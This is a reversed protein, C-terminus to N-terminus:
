ELNAGAHAWGCCCTGKNPRGVARRQRGRIAAGLSPRVGRQHQGRAIMVGRWQQQDRVQGLVALIDGCVRTQGQQKVTGGAEVVGQGAPIGLQGSHDQIDWAATNLVQWIGQLDPQGDSTRPPTYARAAEAPAQAAAPTSLLLTLAAVAAPRWMRGSFGTTM